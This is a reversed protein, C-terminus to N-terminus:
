EKKVKTVEKEKIVLLVLKVKIEKIGVSDRIAKTARHDLKEKKAKIARFERFEPFGKSARSAKKEQNEEIEERVKIEKFVQYGL